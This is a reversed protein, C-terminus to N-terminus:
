PRPTRRTPRFGTIPDTSSPFTPGSFPFPAPPPRALVHAVQTDLSTALTRYLSEIRGTPLQSWTADMRALGYFTNGVHQRCPRVSAPARPHTRPHTHIPNIFPTDTM